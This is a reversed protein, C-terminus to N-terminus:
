GVIAAILMYATGLDMVVHPLAPLVGVPSSNGHWRGNRTRPLMLTIADLVFLAAIVAVAVGSVPVVPAGSASEMGSMPGMGHGDGSMVWLMAAVAALHYGVVPFGRRTAPRTVILGAYVVAMAILVGRVAFVAAPFLLMVVMVLCMLLHAADAEPDCWRAPYGSAYRRRQGFLVLAATAVFAAAVAWRLIADGFGFSGM